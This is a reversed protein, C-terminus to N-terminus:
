GAFGMAASLMRYEAMEDRLDASEPSRYWDVFQDVMDTTIREAPSIYETVATVMRVFDGQINGDKNKSTAARRETADEYIMALRIWLRRRFHVAEKGTQVPAEELATKLSDRMARLPSFDDQIIAEFDVGDATVPDMNADLWDRSDELQVILEDCLDVILNLKKFRAKNNVGVRRERRYKRIAQVIEDGYRDIASKGGLALCLTLWLSAAREPRSPPVAEETM